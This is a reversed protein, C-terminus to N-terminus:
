DTKLVESTCIETLILLYILSVKVDACEINYAIAELNEYSAIDHIVGTVTLTSTKDLLM